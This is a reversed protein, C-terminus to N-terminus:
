SGLCGNPGRSCVFVVVWTKPTVVPEKEEDSLTMSTHGAGNEIESDIPSNMDKEM